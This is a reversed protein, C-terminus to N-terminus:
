KFDGNATWAGDASRKMTMKLSSGSKGCRGHAEIRRQPAVAFMMKEASYSTLQVLTEPARSGAVERFLDFNVSSADGIAVPRECGDVNATTAPLTVEFTAMQIRGEVPGVLAVRKEEYERMRRQYQHETENSAKMHPIGLQDEAASREKFINEFWTFLQSVDGDVTVTEPAAGARAKEAIAQLPQQSGDYFLGVKGAVAKIIPEPAEHDILEYVDNPEWRRTSAEVAEVLKAPDWRRAGPPPLHPYIDAVRHIEIGSTAGDSQAFALTLWCSLLLGM